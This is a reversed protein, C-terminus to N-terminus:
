ARGSGDVVGGREDQPIPPLVLVRGPEIRRPDDIDNSSAILRWFRPEGYERAALLWISDHAELVRRKTKDASNRRPDQLQEALSKYQRFTVNLTARVPTGDSRFMTFRQSVKEVVAVFQFVGWRFKVRPPAHTSGDIAVLGTFRQTVVSVDAGHGDTYTDFLLDMTLVQANGSVFQLIPNSLGPPASEQFRASYEVNYETPNFLVEIRQDKNRGELPTVTAKALEQSM